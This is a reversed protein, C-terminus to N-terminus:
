TLRAPRACRECDEDDEQDDGTSRKAAIVREIERPSYGREVMRRKLDLEMRKTIIKGIVVTVTVVVPMGFVMIISLRAPESFFEGWDFAALM